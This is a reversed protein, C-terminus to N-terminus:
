DFGGKYLKARFPELQLKTKVVDFIHAPIWSSVGSISGCLMLLPLSVKHHKGGVEWKLIDYCAFFCASFVIDRLMTVKLGRFLDTFGYEKYVRRLAHLSGRFKLRPDTVNTQNQVLIRAHEIPTTIFSNAAGAFAGCIALQGPWLKKPDPHEMFKNYEKMVRKLTENVFFRLSTCVGAAM